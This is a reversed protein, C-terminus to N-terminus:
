KTEKTPRTLYKAAARLRLPDDGFQGVGTNCPGCLLGRVVGTDHCHDVAFRGWRNRPDSSACIACKGSQRALMEDYEEPTIGYRALNSRRYYNPGATTRYLRADARRREAHRAYSERTALRRCERCYGDYGDPRARAVGFHALTKSERCRSCTKVSM